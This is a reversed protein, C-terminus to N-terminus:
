FPRKISLTDIRQLVVRMARNGVSLTTDAHVGGREDLQVTLPLQPQKRERPITFNMRAMMVSDRASQRPVFAELDNWRQEPAAALYFELIGTFARRANNGPATPRDTTTLWVLPARISGRTETALLSDVSRAAYGVLRYGNVYPSVILDATKQLSDPGRWVSGPRDYTRFFWSSRDGDAELDVRYTGRLRSPVREVTNWDAGLIARRVQARLPELDAAAANARAWALARARIVSDAAIRAQASAFRPIELLANISFMAEASALQADPAAFFALSRRRPYPYNWVDPIVLVPVGGIWLEPPSLIGRVYGVEGRQAFPISDIWRITRCDARYPAARIFAIPQGDTIGQSLLISRTVSDVRLLRVRAAPMQTAPTALLSDRPGTPVGSFSMPEVGGVAFPLTTDKEVRLLALTRGPMLTCLQTKANLPSSFSLVLAATAAIAGLVILTRVYAEVDSRNGTM